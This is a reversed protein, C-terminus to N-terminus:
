NCFKYRHKERKALYYNTLAFYVRMILFTYAAGYFGYNIILVISIVIGILSGIIINNKLINEKGIVVLYNNGYCNDITSFPISIAFIKIVDAALIFEKTYFINIITEASFFLLAAMVLSSCLSILVFIRHKDKRRVLFPYFVRSLISFLQLALDPFRKGSTFIGNSVAGDYKQLIIISFNSYISPIFQCIFMNFSGKILKIIEKLHPRCISINYKIKIFVLSIIGSLAFGIATLLPHYIYDEKNNIVLFILITFLLKSLLNLITIYKMDEMAQFFWDPFIIHGPIYLFTFILLIFIKNLSNVSLVLVILILFSIFMLLFKAWFVNSFIEQTKKQNKKNLTVDRTATYNFGFDTFLEIFYVISAAYAINGFNDVGIIRSLYPLTILPFAFGFVKLLSLWFFNSLLLKTDKSNLQKKLKTINTNM